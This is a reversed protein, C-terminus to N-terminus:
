MDRIIGSLIISKYKNITQEMQKIFVEPMKYLINLNTQATKYVMPFRDDGIIFQYLTEEKISTLEVKYSILIM